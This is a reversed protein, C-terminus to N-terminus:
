SATTVATVHVKLALIGRLQPARGSKRRTVRLAYCSSCSSPYCLHSCPQTCLTHTLGFRFYETNANEFLILPLGRSCPHLRSQEQHEDGQQRVHKQPSPLAPALWRALSRTRVSTHLNSDARARAGAFATM